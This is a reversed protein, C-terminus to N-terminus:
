MPGASTGDVDFRVAFIESDRLEAPSQAASWLWGQAYHCGRSRLADVQAPTEVGEAVISLDLSRALEVLSTVIALSHADDPIGEVFGRDIKLVTIPLDRLYAMSSYGTGFDDIAIGFGHDRLRQLVAVAVTTDAMIASETIELTVLAPALGAQQAADIIFADLGEALSQGSLNIALVTSEPMTWDAKLEAVDRMTRRIVWRDLDAASASLEALAVFRTPSIMGRTPHHWRALAEVAGVEGTVLDIVPQYHMELSDDALAALLEAGLTYREEAQEALAADFLRARGRGSAKAAYMATDAFRLLDEATTSPSMAVGITAGIRITHHGIRYPQSLMDLLSNAISMATQEDVDHLVVVFEDGGFRSVLDVIRVASRLRRAVQILISDGTTHGRGDNVDKFHDLDIFLVATGEEAPKGLHEMLMARNLLGTLEDHQAAHRLEQEGRRQETIDSIMALSGQPVGDVDPMPSAAVWLARMSGDPHRYPLEYKESGRLHRDRVKAEVEAAHAVDLVSWASFGYIREMPLGTIQALRQNAYTVIGDPAIVLIGEEATEAIARYRGESIRLAEVAEVERTVDRVNTVVVAAETDLLNTSTQELWVRSGEANRARFRWTHSGKRSLMLQWNRKAEAFDDPHVMQRQVDTSMTDVPGFIEQGAPSAYVTRSEADHLSMFDRSRSAVLDFTNQLDARARESDRLARQDQVSTACGDPKGDAGRLLTLDVRVPIPRGDAGKLVAEVQGSEAEGRLLRLFIREIDGPDDAHILSGAPVGLLEDSSRGLLACMADNVAAYTGDRAHLVQPLKSQNFRARFRGEEVRRQEEHQKQETIDTVNGIVAQVDPDDRLDTLMARAWTVNGDRHVLRMELQTQATRGSNVDFYARYVRSRDDPHVFDLGTVGLADDTAWGLREALASTVSTLSGHEDITFIIDASNRLLSLWRRESRALELEADVRATEDIVIVNLMDDGCLTVILNVRVDHGEGTSLRVRVQGAGAGGTVIQLCETMSSSDQPASAFCHLRQGVLQDASRQMLAVFRSDAAVIVGDPTTTVLPAVSPAHM